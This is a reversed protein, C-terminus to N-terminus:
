PMTQERPGARRSVGFLLTGATLCLVAAVLAVAGYMGSLVLMGLLAFVAGLALLVLGFRPRSM